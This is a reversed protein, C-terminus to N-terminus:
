LLKMRAVDDAPRAYRGEVYKVADDALEAFAITRKRLEPLKKGELAEGKRKTLLKDASSWTGAKERRYRGQADVYRIWWVGSGFTKEFIGRDPKGARARSKKAEGKATPVGLTEIQMANEKRWPVGAWSAM